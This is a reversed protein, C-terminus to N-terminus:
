TVNQWSYEITFRTLTRVKVSESLIKISKQKHVACV